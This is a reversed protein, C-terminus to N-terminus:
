QIRTRKQERRHAVRHKLWWGSVLMVVGGALVGSANGVLASIESIQGAFGMGLGLYMSVWVAEGAFGFTTFERWRLGAAGGILNVYPGLPSALWRSFFVGWRGWKQVFAEAKTRLKDRGAKARLWPEARQGLAYGAQDGVIAGLFAACFCALFSLDGAAVFAGATMMLLSAPVPLALCSLFTVLCLAIAGYDVFAAYLLDIM